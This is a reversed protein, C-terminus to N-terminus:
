GWEALAQEDCGTFGFVIVGDVNRRKLVNLHENTKDRDFQSEM